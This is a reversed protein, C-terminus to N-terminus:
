DYDEFGPFRQDVDSNESTIANANDEGTAIVDDNDADSAVNVRVEENTEALKADMEESLVSRWEGQLNINRRGEGAEAIIGEQYASNSAM